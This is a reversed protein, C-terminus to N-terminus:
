VCNFSLVVVKQLDPFRYVYGLGRDKDKNRTSGLDMPQSM